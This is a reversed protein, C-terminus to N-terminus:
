DYLKESLIKLLKSSVVEFNEENNLKVKGTFGYINETLESNTIENLVTKLHSMQHTLSALGFCLTENNEKYYYAITSEEDFFHDISIRGRYTLLEGVKKFQPPRKTDRFKRSEKSIAKTANTLNQNVLFDFSEKTETISPVESRISQEFPTTFNKSNAFEIESILGKFIELDEETGFKKIVDIFSVKEAGRAGIHLSNNKHDTLTHNDLHKIRIRDKSNPGEGLAKNELYLIYAMTLLGEADSTRYFVVSRPLNGLLKINNM